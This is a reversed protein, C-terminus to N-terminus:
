AGTNTPVIPRASNARLAAMAYLFAIITATVIGQAIGLGLSLGALVLMAVGHVISLRMVVGRRDAAAHLAVMNGAFIATLLVSFAINFFTRLDLLSAQFGLLTPTQFADLHAFLERLKRATPDGGAEGGSRLMLATQIVGGAHGLAFLLTLANACAFPTSGAPRGVVIKSANRSM